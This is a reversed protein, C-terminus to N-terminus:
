VLFIEAFRIMRFLRPGTGLEQCGEIVELDGTPRGQACAGPDNLRGEVGGSPVQQNPRYGAGDQSTADAHRRPEPLRLGGQYGCLGGGGWM